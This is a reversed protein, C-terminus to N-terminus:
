DNRLRTGPRLGRDITQAWMGRLEAGSGSVRKGIAQAKDKAPWSYTADAM